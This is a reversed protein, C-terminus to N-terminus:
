RAGERDLSTAARWLGAWAAVMDLYSELRQIEAHALAREFDLLEVLTLEGTAYGVLASEREERAANLLRLDVGEFRQRGASLRADAIAAESRLNWVAGAFIGTASLTDRTAASVLAAQVSRQSTPITLSGVLAPGVTYGSRVEFRQLGLGASWRWASEARAAAVGTRAIELEARAIRIAPAQRILTETDPLSPIPLGAISAIARGVTENPAAVFATLQLRARTSNAAARAADSQVRIRETRMRIVDVYRAEGTAFRANLTASARVLLSDEEIHRSRIRNWVSAEIAQVELEIARSLLIRDLRAEELAVQAAARSRSANVVVSPVFEREATVRATNNLPNTLSIEEVDMALMSAGRTPVARTRIRTAEVSERAARVFADGAQQLERLSRMETTNVLAPQQAVNGLPVSLLAILVTLLAAGRCVRM